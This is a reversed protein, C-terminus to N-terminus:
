LLGPHLGSRHQGEDIQHDRGVPEQVHARGHETVRLAEGTAVQRLYVSLNQRLKRVGVSDM